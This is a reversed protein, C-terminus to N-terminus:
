PSETTSEEGCIGSVSLCEGVAVLQTLTAKEDRPNPDCEQHATKAPGEMKELAELGKTWAEKIKEGAAAMKMRNGSDMADSFDMWLTGEAFGESVAFAVM